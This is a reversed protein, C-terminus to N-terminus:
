AASPQMCSVLYTRIGMENSMGLPADDWGLGVELSGKKASCLPKSIEIVDNMSTDPLDQNASCNATQCLGLM